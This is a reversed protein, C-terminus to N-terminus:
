KECIFCSIDWHIAFTALITHSFALHSVPTQASLIFSVVTDTLIANSSWTKATLANTWSHFLASKFAIFRLKKLLNLASLQTNATAYIHSYHATFITQSNFYPLLLLMFFYSSISIHKLHATGNVAQLKVIQAPLESINYFVKILKLNQISYSM